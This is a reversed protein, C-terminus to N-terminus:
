FTRCDVYQLRRGAITWGIGGGSSACTAVISQGSSIAARSNDFAYVSVAQGNSTCTVTVSAGRVHTTGFGVDSYDFRYQDAPDVSGVPFLVLDSCRNGGSGDNSQSTGSCALTTQTTLLLLLITSTIITNFSYNFLMELAM